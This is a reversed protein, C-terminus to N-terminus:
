DELSFSRPLYLPVMGLMIREKPSGLFYHSYGRPVLPPLSPHCPRPSLNFPHISLHLYPHTSATIRQVGSYHHGQKKIRQVALFPPNQALFCLCVCLSLHCHSQLQLAYMQHFQPGTSVHQRPSSSDPRM